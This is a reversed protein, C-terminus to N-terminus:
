PRCSRRSRARVCWGCPHTPLLRNHLPHRPNSRSRRPRLARHPQLYAHCVSPSVRNNPRIITSPAFPLGLGHCVKGAIEQADFRGIRKPEGGRRRGVFGIVDHAGELRAPTAHHPLGQALCARGDDIDVARAVARDPAGIPPQQTQVIDLQDGVARELHVQALDLLDLAVPGVARHDDREHHRAFFLRPFRDQRQHLLSAGVPDLQVEAARMPHALAAHTRGHALHRFIDLHHRAPALLVGAHGNEHLQGGVDGIDAIRRARRLLAPRIGHAQDVRDGRDDTDVKIIEARLGRDVALAAMTAIAARRDLGDRKVHHGLDRAVGLGAAHGNRADPTDGCPAVRGFKQGKPCAIHLNARRGHGIPELDHLLHDRPQRLIQIMVIHRKGIQDPARHGIDRIPLIEVEVVDGLRPDVLIGADFAPAAIGGALIGAM